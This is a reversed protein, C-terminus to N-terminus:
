KESIFFVVSKEAYEKNKSLLKQVRESCLENQVRSNSILVRPTLRKFGTVNKLFVLIIFVYGGRGLL